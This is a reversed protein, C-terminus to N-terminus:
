LELRVSHIRNTDTERLQLRLQKASRAEGPFFLFGFTISQPEVSRNELSKEKLDRMVTRRADNSAYGKAGGLTAGAAAGVAAGKGAAEAVNDGGVIGVAAGIVAGAAAGLFGHYAGEKFIKQTQAYRSAREYATERDLLPWLYGERDELFTQDTKIELPREGQNDFVLQVPLMGAERIDFGFADRAAEANAFAEAAVQAGSVETVNPYSSPSRFPLPKAKYAPACCFGLMSIWVLLVGIDKTRM